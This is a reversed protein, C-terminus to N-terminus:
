QAEKNNSSHDSLHNNLDRNTILSDLSNNSNVSIYNYAIGIIYDKVATRRVEDLKTYESIIMKDLEDLNYQQALKDLNDSSKELFMVGIGNRLWTDNINFEKCILLIMQDTLNRQGSELKSIGAGTVGLRAGFQDQSMKLEKRIAKLRTNM